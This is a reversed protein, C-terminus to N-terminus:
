VIQYQMGHMHNVGPLADLRLFEAGISNMLVGSSPINHLPLGFRNSFPSYVSSIHILACDYYYVRSTISHTGKTTNVDEMVSDNHTLDTGTRVANSVPGTRNMVGSVDSATRIASSTKNCGSLDSATQVSGTSM